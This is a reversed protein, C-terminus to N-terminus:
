SCMRKIEHNTTLEKPAQKLHNKVTRLTDKRSILYKVLDINNNACAYHLITDGRFNLPANVDIEFQNEKILDILHETQRTVVLHVMRHEINAVEYPQIAGSSAQCGM